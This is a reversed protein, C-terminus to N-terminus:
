PKAKAPAPKAAPATGPKAASPDPGVVVVVLNEPEYLKKSLAKAQELTVSEIYSNRKDIYDLGLNDRQVALLTDAISGTSTFRLPWAGTLYQKADNLEEQTPGSDRMKRWEDRIVQLSAEAQDARTGVSAMMAAGADYPAMGTGVSYALGRKERVEDMLRSQFSGGGFVYDVVLGAYWDPDERMLGKQGIYVVSQPLNKNIHVIKGTGVIPAPPVDAKLGTTAPLTGFVQDLVTQLQAATIDGSVGVMLRDRAFRSKVWGRLDDTTISKITEPKGDDERAYPHKGFLEEMLRQGAIRGPNELQSQISVLIQRRIREVPEQDFRPQTMALRLLEYAKPANPTTTVIQGTIHDSGANFRLTIARDQLETQFAFSDLTGAGEDLLSTVMGSLGLKDDPDIASGGKFGFTIAIIPTTHDESLYASIGGKSKVERVTLASAPAAFAVVAIALLFLKKM